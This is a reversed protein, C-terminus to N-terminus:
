IEIDDLDPFKSYKSTVNRKKYWKEVSNLLEKSCDDCFTMRPNFSIHWSARQTMQEFNCAYEVPMNGGCLPCKPTTRESKLRPM